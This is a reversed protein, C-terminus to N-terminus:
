PLEPQSCLSSPVHDHCCALLKWHVQQSPHVSRCDPVRRPGSFIMQESNSGVGFNRAFRLPVKRLGAFPTAEDRMSKAIAKAEVVCPDTESIKEEAPPTPTQFVACGGRM